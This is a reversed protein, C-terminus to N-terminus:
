TFHKKPLSVVIEIKEKSMKKLATWAFFWNANWKGSKGKCM